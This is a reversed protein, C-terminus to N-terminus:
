FWTTPRMYNALDILAYRHRRDPASRALTRLGKETGDRLAHETFAAGMLPPRPREPSNGARLWALASGLVMVRLQPVRREDAPLEEVRIAARRLASEPLAAVPASTLLSLVATMRATTFYRSSAPVEDLAAVAETYRGTATLLRALGFAASVLGHDTRWATAYFNEAFDRWARTEDPEWHQLVLEATAA